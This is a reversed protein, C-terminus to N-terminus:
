RRNILKYVLFANGLIYLVVFFSSIFPPITDYVQQVLGGFNVMDNSISDIFDSVITFYSDVDYNDEPPNDDYDINISSCNFSDTYSCVNTNSSLSLIVGENFFISLKYTSDQDPNTTFLIGQNLNKGINGYVYPKDWLLDNMTPNILTLTDLTYPMAMFYKSDSVGYIIDTYNNYSSVFIKNNSSTSNGSDYPFFGSAQMNIKSDNIFTKISDSTLSYNYFLNSPKYTYDGYEFILDLSVISYGTFTGSPCNFSDIELTINDSSRNYRYTFNCRSVDIKDFTLYANNSETGPHYVQGYAYYIVPYYAYSFNSDLPNFNFKFNLTSLNSVTDYIFIDKIYSYDKLVEENQYDWLIIDGVNYNKGNINIYDYMYGPEQFTNYPTNTFHVPFDTYLVYQDNYQVVNSHYYSQISAIYVGNVNQTYLPVYQSTSSLKTAVVNSANFNTFLPNPAYNTITQYEEMYDTFDRMANVNDLIDINNCKSSDFSFTFGSNYLLNSNTSSLTTENFALYNTLTYPSDFGITSMNLSDFFNPVFTISVVGNNYTVIDHYLDSTHEIFFDLYEQLPKGCHTMTSVDVYTQYNGSSEARATIVGSGLFYALLGILVPWIFKKLTKLRFSVGMHFRM